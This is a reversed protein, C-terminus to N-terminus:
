QWNLVGLLSSIGISQSLSDAFGVPDLRIALIWWNELSIIFALFPNQLHGFKAWDELMVSVMVLRPSGVTAM